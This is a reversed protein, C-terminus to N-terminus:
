PKGCFDYPFLYASNSKLQLCVFDKFINSFKIFIDWLLLDYSCCSYRLTHSVFTARVLDQDEFEERKEAALLLLSILTTTPNPPSHAQLNLYPPRKPHPALDQGACGLNTRPQPPDELNGPSLKLSQLPPLGRQTLLLGLPRQLFCPTYITNSM